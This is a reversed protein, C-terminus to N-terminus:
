SKPESIFKTFEIINPSSSDGQKTSLYGSSNYDYIAKAVQLMLANRSSPDDRGISDVFLSYSNLANKRHNNITQLNKNISYQKFCFSIIYVCFSIIFLKTILNPINISLKENDGQMIKETIKFWDHEFSLTLLFLIALSLISSTVLWIISTNKNTEEEIGFIKAYNSVVSKAAKMELEKNLTDAKKVAAELEKYKLNFKKNRGELDKTDFIFIGQLTQLFNNSSSVQFADHHFRNIEAITQSIKTSLETSSVNSHKKALNNSLEIFEKKYEILNFELTEPLEISNNINNARDLLKQITELKAKAKEFSEKDIDTFSSPTLIKQIQISEYDDFQYQQQNM